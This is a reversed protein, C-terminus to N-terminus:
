EVGNWAASFDWAEQLVDNPKQGTVSLEIIGYEALKALFVEDEMDDNLLVRYQMFLRYAIGRKPHKHDMPNHSREGITALIDFASPATFTEGGWVVTWLAKPPYMIPVNM